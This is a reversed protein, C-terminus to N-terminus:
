EEDIVKPALFENTTSDFDIAFSACNDSVDVNTAPNEEPFSEIESTPLIDLHKVTDTNVSELADFMAVIKSMSEQLKPIETDSIKLNALKATNIVEEQSVAM